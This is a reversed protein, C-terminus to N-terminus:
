LGGLLKDLDLDGGSGVPTDEGVANDGGGLGGLIGGRREEAPMAFTVAAFAALLIASYKM